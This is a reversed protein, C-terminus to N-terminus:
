VGGGLHTMYIPNSKLGDPRIINVLLLKNTADTDLNVVLEYTNYQVIETISTPHSYRLNSDLYVQIM